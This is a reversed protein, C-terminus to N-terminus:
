KEDDEEGSGGKGYFVYWCLAFLITAIGLGIAVPEMFLIILLSSVGGLVPLLPYLPTSFKPSYWEPDSRRIVIVSFAVLGYMLLHLFSATQALIRIRGLFVLIIIPIGAMLISLHPTKFRRSVGGLFDPLIGDRSLAFITRSSGLISANGSSLTAMLGAFTIMFAGLSGLLHRGVEIMATEGMESLEGPNFISTTLFLTLVYLIGVIVVSGVMAIPLNRGPDDIEGGM